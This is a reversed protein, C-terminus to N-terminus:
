LLHFILVHSISMISLYYDPKNVQYMNQTSLKPVDSSALQLLHVNIPGLQWVLKLIFYTLLSKYFHRFVIPIISLLFYSVRNITSFSISFYFTRFLMSVSSRYYFLSSHMQSMPVSKLFFDFLIELFQAVGLWTNQLWCCQEFCCGSDGHIPPVGNGRWELSNKFSTGGLGSYNLPIYLVNAAQTVLAYIRQAM